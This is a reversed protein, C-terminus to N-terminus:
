NSSCSLLPADVSAGSAGAGVGIVSTSYDKLSEKGRSKHLLITKKHKWEKMTRTSNVPGDRTTSLKWLFNQVGVKHENKAAQCCVQLSTWYYRMNIKIIAYAILQFRM